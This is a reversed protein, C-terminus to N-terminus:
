AVLYLFSDFSAVYITVLVSAAILALGKTRQADSGRAIWWGFVCLSALGPGGSAAGLVSLYRWETWPTGALLYVDLAAGVGAVFAAARWGPRVFAFLLVYHLALSGYVPVADGAVLEIFVKEDLRLGPGILALLQSCVF